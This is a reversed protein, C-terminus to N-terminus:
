ASPALRQTEVIKEGEQPILMDKPFDLVLAQEWKREAPRADYIEGGYITSQLIQTRASQFTDDSVIREQTGDSFCLTLECIVAIRDSRYPRKYAWSMGSHYWGMGALIELKNEKELLQKVDYEQVQLRKDYSTWGPALVFDGVRKQNIKAIYSGLATIKLSAAKLPRSVQFDRRFVPCVMGYDAPTCIWKAQDLM